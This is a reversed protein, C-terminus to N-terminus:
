ITKFDLAHKEELKIFNKYIFWENVLKVIKSIDEPINQLKPQLYVLM